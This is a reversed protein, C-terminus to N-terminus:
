PLFWLSAGFAAASCSAVEVLVTAQAFSGATTVFATTLEAAAAAHGAGAITGGVITAASGAGATAATTAAGVAAGALGGTTVVVAGVAAVATGYCTAKTAGYLFSALLPGGGNIRGNAKISYGQDSMQNVSLYGNNKLFKQIQETPMNRISKDVFYKAVAHKKGDKFVSFGDVDHSLKIAGLQHPAHFSSKSIELGGANILNLSVLATFLFSKIM